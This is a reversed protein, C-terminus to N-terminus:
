AGVQTKNYVEGTFARIAVGRFNLYNLWYSEFHLYSGTCGLGGECMSNDLAIGVM